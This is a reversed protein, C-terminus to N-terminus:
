KSEVMLQFIYKKTEKYAPDDILELKFWLQGGRDIMDNSKHQDFDKKMNRGEQNYKWSIEGGHGILKNV